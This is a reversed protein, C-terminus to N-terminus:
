AKAKIATPKRPKRPTKAKPTAKTEGAPLAPPTAPSIKPTVKPTVKPLLATLRAIERKSEGRRKRAKALKDMVSLVSHALNRDEAEERRKDRRAQQKNFNYGGKKRPRTDSQQENM